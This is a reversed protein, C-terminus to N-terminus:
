RKGFKESREKFFQERAKASAKVKQRRQEGRDIEDEKQVERPRM